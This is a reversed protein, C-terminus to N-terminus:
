RRRRILFIVFSFAIVAILISIGLVLYLPNRVPSAIATSLDNSTSITEQVTPILSPSPIPTPTDTPVPPLTATPPSTPTSSPRVVSTWLALTPVSTKTSSTPVLTPQPEYGLSIRWEAEIGDTDKGYVSVLAKDIRLGSKIAELLSAMKEAGFERLMYDVLMGSHGYSLNAAEAQSSFGAELTRLPPLKDHELANTVVDVYERPIEDISIMSLGESLWTPLWMGKCNFMVADTVLHALEHPIVFAAWDLEATGIAIISSNYETYALGGAWETTHIDVTKLEEVTPYITLWITGTPSIGAKTALRDLSEKAINALTEGFLWSGQYWQVNVQGRKLLNWTHRPDDVLYSQEQTLLSAGDTNHIEWQWYIEGGPPLIGTLTFDWEWSASISTSHTFDIEQRADSSQCSIANTRFHLYIDTIEAASNATLQFTLGDPFGSVIQDQTVHISAQANSPVPNILNLLLIIIFCFIEQGKM